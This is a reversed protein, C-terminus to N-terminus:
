AGHSQESRNHSADDDLRAHQPCKAQGPLHKYLGRCCRCPLAGLKSRIQYLLSIAEPYDGDAAARELLPLALRVKGEDFFLVALHYMAEERGLECINKSILARRFMRRALLINRRTGIGYQHCYGVSVAADGDGTGAARMYWKFMLGFKRNDRYVTAMNCAALYDGGRVARRYWRLALRKDPKTGMGVDYAYGLQGAGTSGGSQEVARQYLRFAAAPNRRVIARGRKDQAGDQLWM